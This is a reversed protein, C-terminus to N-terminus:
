RSRGLSEYPSSPDSPRHAGFEDYVSHLIIWAESETLPKRQKSRVVNPSRHRPGVVRSLLADLTQRLGTLPGSEDTRFGDDGSFSVGDPFLFRQLRKKLPVEAGKWYRALNSLFGLSFEIVEEAPREARRADEIEAQRDAIQLALENLQEKALDDPITGEANKLVIARRVRDLRDAEDQLRETRLRAYTAEERWMRLLRSKVKPVRALDSKVASLFRLFSGEVHERSLNTRPCGMCRYYAYRKIRGKSWCGTLYRGCSCRVTGRLPFDANDRQYTRPSSVPRFSAQARYFVTESVLPVFPVAARQTLGFAEIVGIYLKSHVMRYFRSRCIRVGKKDLWARVENPRHRGSALRSFAEAIVPGKTRHPEINSKNGVRVNRYGCPAMWVWRGETVAQVMGGKSREARIENDFQAVSALVSETFRGVPSDLLQEGVSEIRLGLQQFKLKISLYDAINRALRDIKPIVLLGLSTRNEKAYRLMEHLVPREDTKATEGEEVFLRDLRYGRSSVYDRVLREQTVLSNGDKVQRYDSVRIYAIAKEM